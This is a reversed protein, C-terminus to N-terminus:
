LIKGSLFRKREEESFREIAYRLTTRSIKSYFEKLFKKEIEVDRKGVERLMWGVAKSILDHENELLIESIKLTDNFKNERIFSFTSIISIRRQWLNKSHSLKYLVDKEKPNHLLYNGVINPASTDVLDWNNIKSINKLYFNFINKEDEKFKLCLIALATFRDEHIKSELLKKVEVLSISKYKKAIKRLEPVAVGVFVDGEGYEGKATKFFSSLIRAKDINGLRQIDRQVGSARM